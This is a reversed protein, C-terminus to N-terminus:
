QPKTLFSWVYIHKQREVGYAINDSASELKIEQVKIELEYFQSESSATIMEVQLTHKYIVVKMATTMQNCIALIALSLFLPLLTFEKGM